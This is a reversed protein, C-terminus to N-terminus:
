NQAQTMGCAVAMLTDPFEAGRDHYSSISLTVLDRCSSAGFAKRPEAEGIPPLPEIYCPYAVVALGPVLKAAQIVNYAVHHCTLIEPYDM